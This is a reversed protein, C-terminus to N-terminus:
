PLLANVGVPFPAFLSIGTSTVGATFCSKGGGM